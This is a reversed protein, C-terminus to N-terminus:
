TSPERQMSVASPKKKCLCTPQEDNRRVSRGNWRMTFERSTTGCGTMMLNHNSVEATAVVLTARTDGNEDDKRKEHDQRAATGIHYLVHASDKAGQCDRSSAFSLDLIWDLNRIRTTTATIFVMAQPVDRPNRFM